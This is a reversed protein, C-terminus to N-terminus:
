YDNYYYRHQALKTILQFLVFRFDVERVHLIDDVSKVASLTQQGIRWGIKARGGPVVIDINHLPGLAIVSRTGARVSRCSARTGVRLCWLRVHGDIGHLLRM